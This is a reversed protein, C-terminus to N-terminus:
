PTSYVLTILISKSRGQLNERGMHSLVTPSGELQQIGDTDPHLIGGGGEHELVIVRDIDLMCLVESTLVHTVM